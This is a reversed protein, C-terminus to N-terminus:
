DGALKFKKHKKQISEALKLQEINKAVELNIKDIKFKKGGSLEGKQLM